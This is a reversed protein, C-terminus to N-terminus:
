KTGGVPAVYYVYRSWPGLSVPAGPPQIEAWRRFLGIRTAKKGPTAEHTALYTAFQPLLGNYMDLRVHEEFKQWRYDSYAMIGPRIPFNWVSESGDSYKIVGGAYVVETRPNPAFVGWDEGIGLATLYPQAVPLLDDKITSAPLNAVLIAALTVILGVNILARGPKSTEFRTQVSPRELRNRESTPDIAPVEQEASTGGAARNMLRPRRNVPDDIPL